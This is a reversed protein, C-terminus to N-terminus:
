ATIAEHQVNAASPAALLGSAMQEFAQHRRHGGVIPHAYVQLTMDFKEHGLLSAVDPLSLRHEIMYSAAFHRLSHFHFAKGKGKTWVGAHVQLRRWSNSLTVQQVPRGSGDSQTLLIRRDNEVYYDEIWDSLLKAIHKPMPVDRIGAKTKPEKLVDRWQELSYRVRIVQADIDVNDLTLGRIEGFRLGCFAALHVAIELLRRPRTRWWRIPNAVTEMVVRVQQVDMVAIPASRGAPADQLVDDTVCKATFGRRRGFLEVGRFIQMISRTRRVGRGQDVAMDRLGEVDRYTLEALKKKGFHPVIYNKVVCKRQYLTAFSLTGDRFRLECNEIYLRAVNEIAASESTPLHEGRQIESVIRTRYADADKKKEFTKQRRKGNQDTYDLVWAEREIGKHTWRRKRISAM